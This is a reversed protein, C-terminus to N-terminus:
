WKLCLQQAVDLMEPFMEKIKLPGFVPMLIRHAIEWNREGHHATFLADGSGVRLKEVGGVVMKHFRSEDCLEEMLEASGVVIQTEGGLTIQFVPGSAFPTGTSKRGSYRRRGIMRALTGYKDFM